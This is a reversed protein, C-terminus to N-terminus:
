QHELKELPRAIFDMLIILVSIISAVCALNFDKSSELASIAGSFIGYYTQYDNPDLQGAILKMVLSENDDRLGDISSNIQLITTITIYLNSIAQMAINILIM